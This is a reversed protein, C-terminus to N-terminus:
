GELVMGGLRELWEMGRPEEAFMPVKVIEVKQFKKEIEELVRRQADLKVKIEPIEREVTIVKNVVIM